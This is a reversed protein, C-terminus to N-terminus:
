YLIDKWKKRRGKYEDIEKRVFKLRVEIM